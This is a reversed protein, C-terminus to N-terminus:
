SRLEGIDDQLPTGTLKLWKLTPLSTVDGDVANESIETRAEGIEFGSFGSDRLATALKPTVAYLPSRGTMEDPIDFDFYFVAVGHDDM